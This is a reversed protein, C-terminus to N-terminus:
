DELESTLPIPKSNRSLWRDKIRSQLRERRSDPLNGPIRLVEEPVEINSPSRHIMLRRAEESDRVIADLSAKVGRTGALMMTLVVCALGVGFVNLCTRLKRAWLSHVAMRDIDFVTM